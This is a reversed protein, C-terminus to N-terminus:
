VELLWLKGAELDFKLKTYDYRKEFYNIMDEKNAFMGNGEIEKWSGNEATEAILKM